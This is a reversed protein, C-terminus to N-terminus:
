RLTRSKYSWGARERINCFRVKISEDGLENSVELFLPAERTCAVLLRDSNKDAAEFIEIETWCLQSVGYEKGGGAKAPAKGDFAM